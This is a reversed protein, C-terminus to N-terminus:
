DLIVGTELMAAVADEYHGVSEFFPPPGSSPWRGFLVYRWSAYGTDRGASIPSNATLALLTPLWPRLHNIIQVSRERDEVG